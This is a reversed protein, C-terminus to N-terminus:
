KSAVVAKGLLGKFVNDQTKSDITLTQSERSCKSEQMEALLLREYKPKMNRNGNKKVERKTYCTFQVQLFM